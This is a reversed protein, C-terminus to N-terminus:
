FGTADTGRIFRGIAPVRDAHNGAGSEFYDLAADVQERTSLTAPIVSYTLTHTEGEKAWHELLTPIRVMGFRAMGDLRETDTRESAM